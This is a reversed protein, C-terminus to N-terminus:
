AFDYAQHLHLLLQEHRTHQLNVTSKRIDDM